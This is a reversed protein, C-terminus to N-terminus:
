RYSTVDWLYTVGDSGGSALLRSDPSFALSQIGRKHGIFTAIPKRTAIDWIQVTPQRGSMGVAIRTGDPSFTLCTANVTSLTAIDQWTKTSRIDTRGASTALLTGDPSFAIARVEDLHKFTAINEGTAVDWVKATRDVISDRLSLIYTIGNHGEQEEWNRSGSSVLLTGDPSFALTKIPGIHGSLTQQLEETEVNWLRVKKDKGGTALLTADDSIEAAMVRTEHRFLVVIEAGWLKVTNEPMISIGLYDGESSLAVTKTYGGTSTLTKVHAATKIDRARITNNASLSILYKGDPSFEVHGGESTHEAPLKKANRRIWAETDPDLAIPTGDEVGLVHVVEDSFYTAILTGDPSFTISKASEAHTVSWRQKGLAIDWLKIDRDQHIGGTALLKGDPSFAVCRIGGENYPMTHGSPFTVSKHHDPHAFSRLQKGTEIDWLKTTGDMSGTALRRGDPSFLVVRISDEHKFTFRIARDAVDWLTASNDSSGIALLEGDPSFTVSTVAGGHLFIPLDAEVNEIFVNWLIVRGDRYGIAVQASDPSFAVTSPIRRHESSLLSLFEDTYASYLWVGVSSAVAMLSGDPSVAVHSRGGRGFRAVADSPLAITTEQPYINALVKPDIDVTEVQKARGKEDVLVTTFFSFSILNALLLALISLMCKFM